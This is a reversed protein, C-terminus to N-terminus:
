SLGEIVLLKNILNKLTTDHDPNDVIKVKQYLRTGETTEGIDIFFQVYELAEICTKIDQIEAFKLALPNNKIAIKCMELTQNKIFKLANGNETVAILCLAESPNNVHEITLGNQKVCFEKMEDTPNTYDKLRHPTEKLKEFVSDMNIGPYIRKTM